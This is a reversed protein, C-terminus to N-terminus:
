NPTSTGVRVGPVPLPTPEPDPNPPTGLTFPNSRTSWASTFQTANETRAVVFHQTKGDRTLNGPASWVLTHCNIFPTSQLSPRPVKDRHQPETGEGTYVVYELTTVGKKDIDEIHFALQNPNNVSATLSAQCPNGEQAGILAIFALASLDM